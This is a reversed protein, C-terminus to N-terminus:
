LAFKLRDTKEKAEELSVTLTRVNEELEKVQQQQQQQQELQKAREKESVEEGKGDGNKKSNDEGVIISENNNEVDNSSDSGRGGEGMKAAKVQKIEQQLAAVQSMLRRKDNEMAEGDRLLAQQAKFSKSYNDEARRATAIAKSERAELESISNGLKQFPVNFKQEQDQSNQRQQQPPHRPSPEQVFRTSARGEELTHPLAAVEAAAASKREQEKLRHRLTAVQTQMEKVRGKLKKNRGKLLEIKRNAKELREGDGDGDGKEGNEVASGGGENSEGGKLLDDLGGGEDGWGSSTASKNKGAGDTADNSAAIKQEGEKKDVGDGPSSASEAALLKEALDAKEKKLQSLSTDRMSLTEELTSVTKTLSEGEKRASALDQDLTAVQTELKVRMSMAETLRQEVDMLADLRGKLVENKENLEKVRAEEVNKKADNKEIEAAKQAKQLNQFQEAVDTYKKESLEKEDGLKRLKDNASDLEDQLAQLAKKRDEKEEEGEKEAAAVRETLVSETDSLAKVRDELAKINGTLEDIMQGRKAMEAQVAQYVASVAAAATTTDEGGDKVEVSKNESGDDEQDGEGGLLADLGGDEEQGWGNAPSSANDDLASNATAPAATTTSTATERVLLLTEKCKEQVLKKEAELSRVQANARDVEARLNLILEESKEQANGANFPPTTSLKTLKAFGVAEEVRSYNKAMKESEGPPQAKGTKLELGQANARDLEARLNLIFNELKVQVNGVAAELRSAEEKKYTEQEDKTRELTAELGAKQGQLEKISKQHSTLALKFKAIVKKFGTLRKQSQEVKSELGKVQQAREEKETSLSEELAAKARREEQLAEAVSNHKNELVSANHQSESRIRSTALNADEAEGEAKEARERLTAIESELEKIRTNEEKERTEKAAELAANMEDAQRVLQAKADDMGKKLSEVKSELERCESVAKSESDSKKQLKQELTDIKSERDQLQKKAEENTRELKEMDQTLNEIKATRECLQKKAEENAKELARLKARLKAENKSDQVRKEHKLEFFDSETKILKEHMEHVEDELELCHLETKHEAELAAKLEKQLRSVYSPSASVNGGAISAM